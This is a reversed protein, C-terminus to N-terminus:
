IDLLTTDLYKILPRYKEAVIDKPLLGFSQGDGIVLALKQQSYKLYDFDDDEEEIACGDLAALLDDDTTFKYTTNIGTSSSSHGNSLSQPPGGQILGWLFWYIQVSSRWYVCENYLKQVEYQILEAAVESSDEHSAVSTQPKTATNFTSTPYKFEYEIYLKIFNFQDVQSPYNEEFIWYPKTENYYDLMWELFFNVIDFAPFNPGLYEFDIVALNSDYKPETTVVTVEDTVPAVDKPNFDKQLLLNGYQTDNHCFKIDSKARSGTYNEFLWSHFKSVVQRFEGFSLGMFTDVIDPNDEGYLPLFDTEFVDMWKFIQKWCVPIVQGTQKDVPYDSDELDFKYHLDKMRRALMQSIVHDRILEKNLPEFGELFQEFRGNTFIGLLRPGINKQLLKMLVRLEGDRDILSDVNKGYVRLLLSPVKVSSDNYLIKYISNTLAGSLRNLVLNDLTLNKKWWKPIRLTKILGLVDQKLFDTPLSNDLVAAVLPVLTNPDLQTQSVTLRSISSSSLSRRNMLPRRSSSRLLNRLRSRSRSRHPVVDM